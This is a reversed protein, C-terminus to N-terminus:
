SGCSTRRSVRIVDINERSRCLAAPNGLTGGAVEWHSMDKKDLAWTLNCVPSLCLEIHSNTDAGEVPVVSISLASNTVDIIFVRVTDDIEKQFDQGAPKM